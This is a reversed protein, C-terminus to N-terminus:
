RWRARYGFGFELSTASKFSVSRVAFMAWVPMTLYVRTGIRQYFRPIDDDGFGGGVSSGLQALISFRAIVHEYSGYLGLATQKPASGDHTIDLGAGVKGFRYFHRQLGTTINYTRFDHGGANKRGGAAGVVFESRPIFPPLPGRAARSPVVQPSFNYRVGVKPGVTALGLNPEQTGGNSWHTLNVGAYVNSRASTIYRLYVGADVQYAKDSGLATNTPNTKPDFERWRWSAGGGFDATVQARASVPFPWSFFAYAALPQGLEERHNFSGIYLGVGYSPYNYVRHWLRTGDTQRGIEVTIPRASPEGGQFRTATIVRAPSVSVRLFWPNASVVAPTEAAGDQASVTAAASVVVVAIM